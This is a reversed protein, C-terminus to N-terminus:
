LKDHVSELIPFHLVLLKLCVQEHKKPIGSGKQGWAGKQTNNYTKSRLWTVAGQGVEQCPYGSYDPDKFPPIFRILLKCHRDCLVM